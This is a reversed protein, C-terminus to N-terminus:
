WYTHSGPLYRRKRRKKYRFIVFIIVGIAFVVVVCAIGGAIAVDKGKGRFSADTDESALVSSASLPSSLQSQSPYSLITDTEMRIVSGSGDVTQPVSTTISQVELTTITITGSVGRDDNRVETMSPFSHIPSYLGQSLFGYAQRQKGRNFLCLVPHRPM